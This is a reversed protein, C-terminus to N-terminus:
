WATSGRRPETKKRTTTSGEEGDDRTRARWWARRPSGRGERTHPTDRKEKVRTYCYSYSGHAIGAVLAHDDRAPLTWSVCPRTMHADLAHRHCGLASRKRTATINDGRRFRNYVHM